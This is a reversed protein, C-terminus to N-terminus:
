ARGHGGQGGTRAEGPREYQRPTDNPVGHAAGAGTAEGPGEGRAYSREGDVVVSRGGTGDTSPQSRERRVRQGGYHADRANSTDQRRPTHRWADHQQQLPDRVYTEGNIVITGPAQPPNGKGFGRGRGHAEVQGHPSAQEPLNQRQLPHHGGPADGQARACSHGTYAPAFGDGHHEVLIDM